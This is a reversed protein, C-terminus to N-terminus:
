AGKLKRLYSSGYRFLPDSPRAFEKPEIFVRKPKEIPKTNIYELPNMMPMPIQAKEKRKFLSKIWQIIRNLM